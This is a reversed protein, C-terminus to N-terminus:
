PDVIDFIEEFPSHKGSPAPRRGPFHQETVRLNRIELGKVRRWNPIGGSKSRGGIQYTQIEYHGNSNGHEHPEAIRHHGDYDFEIIKKYRIAERISDKIL